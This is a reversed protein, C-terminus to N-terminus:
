SANSARLLKTYCVNYSTIRCAMQAAAVDPIGEHEAILEIEDDTLDCYDRLLKTYCVNYSTIRAPLESAVAKALPSMPLLMAGCLIPLVKKHMSLRM